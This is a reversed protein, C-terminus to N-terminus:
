PSPILSEGYTTAHAPYRSADVSHTVLFVLTRRLRLFFAVRGEEKGLKVKGRLKKVGGPRSAKNEVEVEERGM